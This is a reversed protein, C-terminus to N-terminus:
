GGTAPPDAATGPAARSTLRKVQATAVEDDFADAAQNTPELSDGSGRVGAQRTADLQALVLSQVDGLTADLGVTGLRYADPDSEFAIRAASVLVRVDASPLPFRSRLADKSVTAADKWANPTGAAVAALTQGGFADFATSLWAAAVRGCDDTFSAMPTAGALLTDRRGRMEKAGETDGLQHLTAAVLEARLATGPYGGTAGVGPSERRVREVDLTVFDLLAYGFARGGSLAGYVDAFAEGLWGQWALARDGPIGHLDIVQELSEQLASTLDLDDEVVHGAEHALILVDPLHSLQSWPLGLVAIPLTKMERVFAQRETEGSSVSEAMLDAGRTAAFPSWDSNLYCLPPERVSAATRHKAEVAARLAPAICAWAYDDAADLFRKMGPQLRQALKSRHFEWMAHLLLVDRELAHGLAMNKESRTSMATVEEALATRLRDLRRVLRRVQTHHKEFAQGARSLATWQAFDLTLADLKDVLAARRRAVMGDLASTM